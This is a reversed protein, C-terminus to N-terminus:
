IELIKLTLQKQIIVLSSNDFNVKKIDYFLLKCSIKILSIM